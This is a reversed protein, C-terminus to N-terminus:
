NMLNPATTNGGEYGYKFGFLFKNRVFENVPYFVTQFQTTWRIGGAVLSGKIGGLGERTQDGLREFLHQSTVQNTLLLPLLGTLAFYGLLALRFTWPLIRRRTKVAFTACKFLHTIAGVLSFFLAIPPVILTRYSDRGLDALTANDAYLTPPALRERLLRDADAKITPLYVDREFDGVSKKPRLQLQSPLKLSAKWKQQITPHALLEDFGLNPALDGSVGLANRVQTHFTALAEKRVQREVARNFGVRDNPRWDGAVPVGSRQLEQRVSPWYAKPINAPRRRHRRRLEEEYNEWAAQQRVGLRIGKTEEDFQKSAPLYNKAYLERLESESAKFDRYFDGPKGRVNEALFTFMTPAQTALRDTLGPVSLALLPFTALFTKGEPSRFAAADLDLGKLSFDPRTMLQTIPVLVAARSRDEASSREVLWDVLARQGYYMASICCAAVFPLRLLYTRTRWNQRAAKQLQFGLFLLALAIGSILRGSEEIREIEDHTALSGVVDLLRANFGLEFVLYCLTLFLM